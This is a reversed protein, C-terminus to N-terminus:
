RRRDLQLVVVADNADDGGVPEAPHIGDITLLQDTLDHFVLECAFLSALHLDDNGYRGLFSGAIQRANISEVLM